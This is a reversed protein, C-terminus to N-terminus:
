QVVFSETDYDQTITRIPNVQFVARFHYHYQGPIAQPPIPLVLQADARCGKPSNESGTPLMLQSTASVLSTTVRGTSSVNKCYDETELVVYTNPQVTKSIVRIPQKVTLANAPVSYIWYLVLAVAAATLLLSIRAFWRLLGIKKM